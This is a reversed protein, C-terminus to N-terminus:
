SCQNGLINFSRFGFKWNHVYFTDYTLVVEDFKILTKVASINLTFSDIISNLFLNSISNEDFTEKETKITKLDEPVKLNFDNILFNIADNNTIQKFTSIFSIINGSKGCGFCKFIRKSPSVTFSPTKEPHFPCLGIYNTGRKKLPTYKGIVDEISLTELIFSNAKTM